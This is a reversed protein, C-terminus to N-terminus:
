GEDLVIFGTRKSSELTQLIRDKEARTRFPRQGRVVRLACAVCAKRPAIKQTEPVTVLPNSPDDVSVASVLLEALRTRNFSIDRLVCESQTCTQEQPDVRDSGAKTRRDAKFSPM